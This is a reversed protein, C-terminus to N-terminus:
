FYRTVRIQLYDDSEFSYQASSEEAGSFMRLRLGATISEGIRREAELNYFRESNRRDFILGALINTDQTDNLTLRSGVFVDDDFTTPPDHLNRDDYLYEMLFGFDANSNMLQYRTYEFGAVAAFFSSNGGTAVLSELKWLWAAGTYQLDLGWQRMQTYIPILKDRGRNLTFGPERSTGDFYYLGVDASGFYHSYRVAFDTHKQKAASEFRARDDDVVLSARFRGDQGGFTRERFYPLVYFDLKGWDRQLSLNVMPQGLKDEQDPDEVLDTQNIVDILHRSEAVGWFVKNVGVLLEWGGGEYAWYAERLDPHTRQSDVEDIRLFPQISIRHKEDESRWRWEFNLLASFQADDVQKRFNPSELFFRSELGTDLSLKWEGAWGSQPLVLLGLTFLHFFSLRM